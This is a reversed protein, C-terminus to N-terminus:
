MSAKVTYLLKEDLNEQKIIENMKKLQLDLISINKLNKM